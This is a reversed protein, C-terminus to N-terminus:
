PPFRDIAVLGCRLKALEILLYAPTSHSRPADSMVKLDIAIVMKKATPLSEHTGVEVSNPSRHLIEATFVAGVM